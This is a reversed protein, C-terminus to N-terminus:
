KMISRLGQYLREKANGNASTTSPSVTGGASPTSEKYKKLEGELETLKSKLKTNEVKLPGWGAARNRVAAHVKVVEERQEPTLRPNKPHETYARDALKFGKELLRNWDEDGERPKFYEGNVPDKLFVDNIQNWKQLIDQSLAKDWTEYQQKNRSEREAGEERAKKLAMGQEELLKKIEKRHSMVDDAFDGFVSNAIERAKQIPLHVLEMIDDFKLNRTQQTAPDTITLEGLESMALECAAVYPQVHEEQFKKSKSYNVYRIEDELEKARAEARELREQRAKLEPEPLLQKELELARQEAKAAREKFQDVLKWPSPKKGDAVPEPKTDTVTKSADDAKPPVDLPKDEKPKDTVSKTAEAPAKDAVPQTVPSGGKKKLEEHLRAKASGPKPPASPAAPPPMQSVIIEKQPPAAPASPPAIEITEAM